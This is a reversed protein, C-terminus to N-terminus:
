NGIMDTEVVGLLTLFNSGNIVVVFSRKAIDISSLWNSNQEVAVVLVRRLCVCV